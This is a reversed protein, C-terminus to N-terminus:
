VLVFGGNVAGSGDYVLGVRWRLLITVWEQIESTLLSLILYIFILGIAIDIVVPLNM